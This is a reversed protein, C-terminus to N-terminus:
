EQYCLQDGSSRIVYNIVVAGSLKIITVIVVGSLMISCVWEQYCFQDGNSRIAYNM